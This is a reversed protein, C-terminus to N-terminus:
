NRRRCQRHVACGPGSRECKRVPNEDPTLLGRDVEPPEAGLAMKVFYNNLIDENSRGLLKGTAAAGWGM